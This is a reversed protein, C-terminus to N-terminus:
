TNLRNYIEKEYKEVVKEWTFKQEVIERGKKGMEEAKKPDDLLKIIATALEESDEKNIILGSVGDEIIEPLGGVNTAVLPIGSSMAELATIPFLDLRSPLVTLYAKQYFGAMKDQSVLGQWSINSSVDLKGVLQRLTKERKDMEGIIILEIDSYKKIIIPLARILIDLGKYEVSGGVFLINKKQSVLQIFFRKINIGNSIIFIKNNPVKYVVRCQEAGFECLCQVFDAKLKTLRNLFLSFCFFWKGLNLPNLWKWSLFLEKFGIYRLFPSHSAAIFLLKSKIHPIFFGEYGLSIVVDPIEVKSLKKIIKAVILCNVIPIISNKRLVINYETKPKESLLEKPTLYITTVKHGRKSFYESLNHAVINGGGRFNPHGIQTIYITLKKM